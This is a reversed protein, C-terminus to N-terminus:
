VTWLLHDGLRGKTTSGKQKTATRHNDDETCLENKGVRWIKSESVEGIVVDRTSNEMEPNKLNTCIDTVAAQLHKESWKM